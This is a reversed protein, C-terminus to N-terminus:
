APARARRRSDAYLAVALTGAAWRVGDDGIQGSVNSNVFAFVFFGLAFLAAPDLRFAGRLGYLAAATLLLLGGYLVVGLAGLSYASEVIANHPSIREGQIGMRHAEPTEDRLMAVGHGFLPKDPVARIAASWWERRIHLSSIPQQGGGPAFGPVGTTYYGSSGVARSLLWGAALGVAVGLVLVRWSRRWTFAAVAALGVLLSLVPSRSGPLVTAAVLLGLAAGQAARARGPPSPLAACAIAALAPILGASIPDLYPIPSFRNVDHSNRLLAVAEFVCFVLGLAVLAQALADVARRPLAGALLASPLSWLVLLAAFKHALTGHSLLAVNLLYWASLAVAFGVYLRPLRDPAQLRSWLVGRLRWALACMLVAFAAYYAATLWTRPRVGMVDLLALYVFFGNVSIALVLAPAGWARVREVAAPFAMGVGRRAAADQM